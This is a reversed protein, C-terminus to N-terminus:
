RHRGQLTRKRPVQSEGQGRESLIKEKRCHGVLRGGAGTGGSGLDQGTLGPSGSSPVRPQTHVCRAPSLEAHCLSDKPSDCVVLPLSFLSRLQLFTHLAAGEAWM